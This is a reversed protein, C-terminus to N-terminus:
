ISYLWTYDDDEDAAVSPPPVVVASTVSPAPSASQEAALPPSVVSVPTEEKVRRRVIQNVGVVTEGAPVVKTVIAAAGVTCDDGITIDGLVTSGAGMVVRSGITPHRKTGSPVPKGTAGLTVGHLCYVDSGIIATSGIVVGHAHDLMMGNGITAGPHIDVDFLESARSQLMLAAGRSAASGDM